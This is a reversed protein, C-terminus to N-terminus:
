VRVISIIEWHIIVAYQLITYCVNVCFVISASVSRSLANSPLLLLVCLAVPAHFFFFTTPKPLAISDGLILKM